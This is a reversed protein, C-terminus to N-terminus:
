TGEKIDISVLEADGAMDDNTTDQADRMILLFFTEGVAINDMESGDAFTITYDKVNGSASPADMATNSNPAAFTATDIDTVDDEIRKFFIKYSMDGTTASSAMLKMTVTLGGGDYNRPMFGQFMAVENVIADFDLVPVSNRVDGSAVNLVPVGTFTGHDSVTDGGISFNEGSTWASANWNSLLFYGAADGGAWSGSTLVVFELIADAASADGHISNGPVPVTTGGGTFVVFLWEPFLNNTASFASLTDDNAV